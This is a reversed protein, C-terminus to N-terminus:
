LLGKQRLSVQLGFVYSALRNQNNRDFQTIAKPLARRQKESLHLQMQDNLLFEAGCFSDDGRKYCRRVIAVICEPLGIERFGDVKVLLPTMVALQDPTRFQLGGGSLDITQTQVWTLRDDYSQWDGLPVIVAYSLRKTTEVRAFMRRQVREFRRPPALLYERSSHSLMRKIQSSFQYMADDRTVLVRVNIEERLLTSGELYEPETIVIGGNIFDQIRALYRGTDPPDGVVLEIREWVKLPQSLNTGATVERSV